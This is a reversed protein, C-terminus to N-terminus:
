AARKAAIIKIHQIDKNMYTVRLNLMKQLGDVSWVQGSKKCREQIVM